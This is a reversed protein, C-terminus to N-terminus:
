VEHGLRELLSRLGMGVLTDDEVILVRRKGTVPVDAAPTRAAGSAPPGDGPANSKEARGAPGAQGGGGPARSESTMQSRRKGRGTLVRTGGAPHKWGAVGESVLIEHSLARLRSRPWGRRHLQDM